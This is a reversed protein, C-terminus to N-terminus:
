GSSVASNLATATDPGVVGDASLGNDQQFATVAAETTPGFSGDVSGPDYGAAVLTQQLQKVLEADGEGLRLKTGEPLTFSSSGNAPPTESGTTGPTEQAPTEQTPSTTTTTTAPTTTAPTTTVPTTTAPTTTAQDSVPAESGGRFLLLAIVLGIGLVAAVALGAVIRRREVAARHSESADDRRPAPRSTDVVAVLGERPTPKARDRQAHEAAHESWDYDSIEGLWDDEPEDLRSRTAGRMGPAQMPNMTPVPEAFV